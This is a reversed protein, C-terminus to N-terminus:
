TSGRYAQWFAAAWALPDSYTDPRPIGLGSLQPSELVQRAWDQWADLNVLRPVTPSFQECMIAAWREFEIGIPLPISTM